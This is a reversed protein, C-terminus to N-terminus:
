MKEIELEKKTKELSEGLSRLYYFPKEQSCLIDNLNFAASELAKWDIPYLAENYHCNKLPLVDLKSSLRAIFQSLRPDIKTVYIAFALLKKNFKECWQVDAIRAQLIKNKTMVIQKERQLFHLKLSSVVSSDAM